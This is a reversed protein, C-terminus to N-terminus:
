MKGKEEKHRQIDTQRDKQRERDTQRDREGNKVEM